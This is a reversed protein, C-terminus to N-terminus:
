RPTMKHITAKLAMATTANIMARGPSSLPYSPILPSLLPYSLRLPLSIAEPENLGRLSTKLDNRPAYRHPTM